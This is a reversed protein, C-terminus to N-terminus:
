KRIHKLSARTNPKRARTYRLHSHFSIKHRKNVFKQNKRDPLFLQECGCKCERARKLAAQFEKSLNLHSAGKENSAGCLM